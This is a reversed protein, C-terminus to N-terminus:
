VAQESEKSVMEKHFKSTLTTLKAFSPQMVAVPEISRLVWMTWQRWQKGSELTVLELPSLDFVICFDKSM